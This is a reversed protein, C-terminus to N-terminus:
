GSSDLSGICQSSDGKKLHELEEATQQYAAEDRKGKMTHKPRHISYSHCHILRRLQDESLGIGTVKRLHAALRKTSWTSFGYGLDQPNTVVAHKMVLIYERTTRGPSRLPKQSKLADLGRERYERRIRLVTERSCGLREAMSGISNGFHLMTIMLCNRFVDTSTTKLRTLDIRNLEELTLRIGRGM